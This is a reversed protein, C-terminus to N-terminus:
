IHILSLNKVGAEALGNSEPNYASCLEHKIGNSSCFSSFENRFAPGGDTRIKNPWGYETFWTQLQATVSSTCKDRLQANWTYGSYRDVLVLWSKGIADYIDSGLENMPILADSPLTEKMKMRAQTPRDKQCTNCKKVVSELLTRM